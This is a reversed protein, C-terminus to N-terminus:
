TATSDTNVMGHFDREGHRPIRVMGEYRPFSLKRRKNLQISKRLGRKSLPERGTLIKLVEVACQEKAQFVLALLQGRSKGRCKLRMECGARRKLMPGPNNVVSIRKTGQRGCPADFTIASSEINARPKVHGGKRRERREINRLVIRCSESLLEAIFRVELM